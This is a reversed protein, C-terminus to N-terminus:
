AGGTPPNDATSAPTTPAGEIEAIIPLVTGLVKDAYTKAGGTALESYVTALATFINLWNM